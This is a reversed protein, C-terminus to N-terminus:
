PTFEKELYLLFQTGGPVELFPKLRETDDAFSKAQDLSSNGLGNLVGNKLSGPEMTMGYPGTSERDKMGQALGGVFNGFFRGAQRKLSRSHFDGAIGSSGDGLLAIASISHQDGDPFVLTHFRVQLRQTNDDLMGQGIARTGQPILISGKWDIAEPIEAIVPSNSDTSLVSNVLKAVITTGLPLKDGNNGSDSRRVLQSAMFQRPVQTSAPRSKNEAFPDSASDSGYESDSRASNNKAQPTTSSENQRSNEPEPNFVLLFLVILGLFLGGALKVNGWKFKRRKSYPCAEDM